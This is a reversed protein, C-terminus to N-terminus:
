NVFGIFTEIPTIWCDKNDDFFEVHRQLPTMSKRDKPDFIIKSNNLEDESLQIEEVSIFIPVL